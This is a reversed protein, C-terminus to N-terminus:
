RTSVVISKNTSNNRLLYVGHRGTLNYLRQSLNDGGQIKGVPIGTMTYVDYVVIDMDIIEDVGDPLTCKLEIKDINCYGGTITIRLIQQGSTLSGSISGNVTQYTDWSGTNPVSITALTTASSGNMLSLSFGSGDLGSSVTAIYSYKGATNVNVTYELWENTQTYGIARGNNGTTIDV